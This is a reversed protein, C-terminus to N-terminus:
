TCLLHLRTSFSRNHPWVEIQGEAGREHHRIFNALEAPTLVSNTDDGTPFYKCDFQENTDLEKRVLGWGAAVLDYPAPAGVSKALANIDELVSHDCIKFDTARRNRVGCNHNWQAIADQLLAHLLVPSM